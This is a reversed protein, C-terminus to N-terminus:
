PEGDRTKSMKAWDWNWHPPPPGFLRRGALNLREAENSAVTNRRYVEWSRARQAGELRGFVGRCWAWALRPWPTRPALRAIPQPARYPSALITHCEPTM